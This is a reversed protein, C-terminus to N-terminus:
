KMKYLFLEYKSAKTQILILNYKQESDFKELYDGDELLNDELHKM